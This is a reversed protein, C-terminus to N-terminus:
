PGSGRPMCFILVALLLAESLRRRLHRVHILLWIRDSMNLRRVADVTPSRVGVVDAIALIDRRYAGSRVHQLRAIAAHWGRNAGIENGGHQRYLMNPQNDIHWRFGQGRVYAYILWDHVWIEQMSSSEATVWTRMIDFIARPLVFTCGPGPSGFLYDDSCQPDSKRLVRRRGDPWFAVVDSSYGDVQMTRLCHVARLLKNPLWIDDQDALAVFEAEGVPAERILRLFNKHASGFRGTSAPLLTMPLDQNRRQLLASTGDTSADDSVVITSRVGHQAIISDIQEDLWKAGNYTALLVCIQTSSTPLDGNPNLEAGFFISM